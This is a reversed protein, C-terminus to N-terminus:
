VQVYPSNIPAADAAKWVAFLDAETLGRAAAEDVLQGIGDHLREPDTEAQAVFHMALMEASMAALAQPTCTASYIPEPM